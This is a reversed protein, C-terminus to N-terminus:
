MAAQLHKPGELLRRRRPHLIEAQRRHTGYDEARPVHWQRGRGHTNDHKLMHTLLMGCTKHPKFKPKNLVGCDQVFDLAANAHRQMESVTNEAFLLVM